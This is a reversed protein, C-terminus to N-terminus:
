LNIVANCHSIRQAFARDRNVAIRYRILQLIALNGKGILILSISDVACRHAHGLITRGDIFCLIDASISHRDCFRICLDRFFALCRRKRQLGVVAADINGLPRNHDGRFGPLPFIVTFYM